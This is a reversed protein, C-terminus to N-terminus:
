KYRQQAPVFRIRSKLDAALLDNAMDWILNTQNGSAFSQSLGEISESTVGARISFIETYKSMFLKARFPLNEVDETNITTNEALWELAANVHLVARDDLPIIGLNLNQIQQSTLM